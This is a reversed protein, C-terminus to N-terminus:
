GKVFRVIADSVLLEDDRYNAFDRHINQRAVPLKSWKKQDMVKSQFGAETAIRLTDTLRLRNTYFGSRSFLKSEWLSSSFRLNNLSYGLHDKYDIYHVMVGSPKLVRFFERMFDQFEKRPIHELVAYSYIFDISETAVEKLSILGATAYSAQSNKLWASFDSDQPPLFELQQAISRYFSMDKRAYDGADIFTHESFGFKKTLFINALSDGPGIELCHGQGKQLGSAILLDQFTGQVYTIREMNGHKFLNLKSWFSYAFPLRTLIIKSVIKVWWPLKNKFAVKTHSNLVTNM